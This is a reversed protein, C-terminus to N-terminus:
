ADDSAPQRAVRDERAVRRTETWPLDTTRPRPPTFELVGVPRRLVIEGDRAEVVVRDGVNFGTEDRIAKPITVQGKKYIRATSM